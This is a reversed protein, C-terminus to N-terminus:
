RAVAGPLHRVVRRAIAMAGLCVFPRPLGAADLSESSRGKLTRDDPPACSRAERSGGGDAQERARAAHARRRARPPGRGVARHGHHAARLPRPTSTGNRSSEQLVMPTRLAEDAGADRTPTWEGSTARRGGVGRSRGGLFWRSGAHDGRSRGPGRPSRRPARTSRPPGQEVESTSFQGSVGPNKAKPAPRRRAQKTCFDLVTSSAKRLERDVAPRLGASRMGSNAKAGFALRSSWRGLRGPRGRTTVSSYM